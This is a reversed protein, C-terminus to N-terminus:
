KKNYLRNDPENQEDDKSVDPLPPIHNKMLM